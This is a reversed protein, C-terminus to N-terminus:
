KEPSIVYSTLSTIKGGKLTYFDAFHSITEQGNEVTAVEGNGSVFDGEAVLNNIKQSVIKRHGNEQFLKILSEKGELKPMGSGPWEATINEAFNEYAAEPNEALNEIFHKIIQKNDM